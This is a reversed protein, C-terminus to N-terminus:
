SKAVVVRYYLGALLLLGAFSAPVRWDDGTAATAALCGISLVLAV